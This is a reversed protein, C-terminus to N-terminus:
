TNQACLLDRVAQALAIAVPKLADPDFHIGDIAGPGVVENIDFCQAGFASAVAPYSHRLRRLAARSHASDFMPEL